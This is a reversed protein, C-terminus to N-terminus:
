GKKEALAKRLTENALQPNAQGQTKKMVQGMLFGVVNENGDLYDSVAEPNEEIVEEALVELQQEDSIQKLGMKEVLERPDRGTEAMEPWLDKAIKGSIEGSEVMELMQVLQVPTVDLQSLSTEEANLYGQIEGMLWNAVEKPDGEQAVADEFFEGLEEEGVLVSADYETLGYEEQLRTRRERPTEPMQENLKNVRDEDINVPLLDPEPFYRYDHAQEKARASQTIGVDEDWHRTEHTLTCDKQLAEKHRTVEWNLAREVGRFSNLNKLETIETRASEKGGERCIVNINTDCRLEGEEMRVDSVGVARLLARLQELFARTDGASKLDPETVIEGLPVGCRNFDVRSKKEGATHVLKGADEELHVRRIDVTKEEGNDDTFLFHGDESMPEVLQSIQYGKPLDPYHYNKREFRMAPHIDCNLALACTLGLEVARRNLVPLTGPLGLCVPCVNENPPDGFATSCGCFMKSDTALAVHIELGIMVEYQTM